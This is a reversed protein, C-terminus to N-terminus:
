VSAQALSGVQKQISPIDSIMTYEDVNASCYDCYEGTCTDVDCNDSGKYLIGGQIKPNMGIRTLLKNLESLYVNLAENVHQNEPNEWM